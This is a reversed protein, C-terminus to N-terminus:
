ANARKTAKKDDECFQCAEGAIFSILGVMCLVVITVEHTIVWSVIEAM